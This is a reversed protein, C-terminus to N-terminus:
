IPLTKLASTQEVGHTIYPLLLHAVPLEGLVAQLLGLELSLGLRLTVLLCILLELQSILNGQLKWELTVWVMGFNVARALGELRYARDVSDRSWRTWAINVGFLQVM